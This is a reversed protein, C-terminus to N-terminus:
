RCVLRRHSQLESTHEESRHSITTEKMVHNHTPIRWCIGRSGRDELSPFCRGRNISIHEIIGISFFTKDFSHLLFASPISPIRQQFDLRSLSDIKAECRITGACIRS